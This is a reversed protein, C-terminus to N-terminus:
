EWPNIEDTGEATVMLSEGERLREAVRDTRLRELLEEPEADEMLEASVCLCRSPKRREPITFRTCTINVRRSGITTGPFATELFRRVSETNDSTRDIMCEGHYGGRRPNM